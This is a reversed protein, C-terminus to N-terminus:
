FRFLEAENLRRNLIILVLPAGCSVSGDISLVRGPMSGLIAATM